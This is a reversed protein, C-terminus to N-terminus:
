FNKIIVEGAKKTSGTTLSYSTGVTEMSFAAFTERVMPVDNLSFVLRGDISALAGALRAFDDRAFLTKGYYDECRWNPPDLFFDVGGRM